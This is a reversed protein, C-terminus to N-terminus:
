GDEKTDVLRTVILLPRDAVIDVNSVVTTGDDIRDLKAGLVEEPNGTDGLLWPTEDKIVEVTRNVFVLVMGPPDVIMIVLVNVVVRLPARGATEEPGARGVIDFESLVSVLVTDPPGVVVIDLMDRLTGPTNTGPDVDPDLRGSVELTEVVNVLVKGPPAVVIKVLVKAMILVGTSVEEPAVDFRARGLLELTKVVGVLVPRLTCGVIGVNAEPEFEIKEVPDDDAARLEDLGLLSPKVTEKGFGEAPGPAGVTELMADAGGDPRFEVTTGTRDVDIGNEAEEGLENGGDVPLGPDGVNGLLTNGADEERDVLELPLDLPDDATDGEEPTEEDKVGEEALGLPEKVVDLEVPGRVLLELAADVPGETGNAGVGVTMEGLKVAEVKDKNVGDLEDMKTLVEDLLELREMGLRLRDLVVAPDEMADDGANVDSADEVVLGIEGDNLVNDEAALRLEVGPTGGATVDESLRFRVDLEMEDDLEIVDAPGIEDDLGTNDVLRMEADLELGNDFEGLAGEVLTKTGMTDVVKTVRTGLAFMEEDELVLRLENTELVLRLEDDELVLRIEDEEASDLMLVADLEPVAAFEPGLALEKMTEGLVKVNAIVSVVVAGGTPDVDAEDPELVAALEPRLVRNELGEATGGLVRVDVNVVVAGGTTDGDPEGLKLAVDKNRSRAMVFTMDYPSVAILKTNGEGLMVVVIDYQVPTYGVTVPGIGDSRSVMGNVVRVSRCVGSEAKGENSINEELDLRKLVTTVVIYSSSSSVVAGGAFRWTTGMVGTRGVGARCVVFRPVVVTAIGFKGPGEEQPSDPLKVSLKSSVTTAPSSV